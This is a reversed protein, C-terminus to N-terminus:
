AGALDRRGFALVGALAATAALALMILAATIRFPQAPVLAVHQFPSLDLMWKPAGLLAGFLQWVFAVSVLGYAIGTSARPVVGYALSALALFLLSTPLCNAGAELMEGFSVDAGQSAAGVWTLLGAVLALGGIGGAGVVIRGWLWRTRGVPLALLTELQQDAEERRAAAIQACAFLSIAFVFLLFYFGIAGAPTVLSAGGVKALQERINAPLNETTFSTSLAGVV